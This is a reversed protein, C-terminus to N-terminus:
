VDQLYKKEIEAFSATAPDRDFEEKASLAEAYDLEDEIRQLACRRLFDSSTTGFTKAYGAILDKEAADLRVTMTTSAM